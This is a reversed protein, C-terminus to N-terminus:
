GNIVAPLGEGLLKAGFVFLLVTMIARNHVAMFNKMALLTSAAAERKVLYLVVPGLVAVSAILLFVIGAGVTQGGPLDADSIVAAAALALPMNKLNGASSFLGFGFSKGSGFADISEMWKPFTPEATEAPRKAVMLVALVIFALGLVLKLWNSSTSPTEDSTSSGSGIVVGVVLIGILGGLWGASFALSNSIARPTALMLIVAVTPFPSLAIGVALPFVGGLTNLFM